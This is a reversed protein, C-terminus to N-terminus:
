EGDGQRGTESGVGGLNVRQADETDPNGRRCQKSGHSHRQPPCDEDTEGDGQRGTEKDALGLIYAFAALRHEVESRWEGLVVEAGAQRAVEAAHEWDGPQDHWPVKSVFAFVPGAGRSSAISDPLYWADDHLIYAVALGAGNEDKM